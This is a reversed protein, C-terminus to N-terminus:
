PKVDFLFIVLLPYSTHLPQTRRTSSIAVWKEGSVAGRVEGSFLHCLRSHAAAWLQSLM